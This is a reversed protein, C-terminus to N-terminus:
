GRSWKGKKEGLSTNTNTKERNRAQAQQYKGRLDRLELELLKVKDELNKNRVRNGNIENLLTANETARRSLDRRSAANARSSQRTLSHLRKDLAKMQRQAEESGLNERPESTSQASKMMNTQRTAISHKAPTEEGGVVHQHYIRKLLKPWEKMDTHHVVTSLERKLELLTNKGEVIAENLMVVEQRHHVALHAKREVDDELKRLLRAQEELEQQTEVLRKRLRKIEQDKPAVSESIERLRYEVVTRGKTVSEVKERLARVGEEMQRRGRVHEGSQQQLAEIRKSQDELKIKYADMVSSAEASENALRLKEQQMAQIGKALEEKEKLRQEADQTLKRIEEDKECIIKNVEIERENTEMELMTEYKKRLDEALEQSAEHAETARRLRAQFQERLIRKERKSRDRQEAEQIQSEEIDRRRRRELEEVRAEGVALKREYRAELQETTEVQSTQMARMRKLADREKADAAAELAAYRGRLEETEARDSDRAKSVEEKMQTTMDAITKSLEKELQAIMKNANSIDDGGATLRDRSITLTDKPFRISRNHQLAWHALATPYFAGPLDVTSAWPTVEHVIEGNLLRRLVGQYRYSRGQGPTTILGGVVIESRSYAMSTYVCGNTTVHEWKRSWSACEWETVYSSSAVDTFAVALHRDESDFSLGCVGPNDQPLCSIRGRGESPGVRLTAIKALGRHMGFVVVQKTDRGVDGVALYQGGASWVLPAAETILVEKLVVLDEDVVMLIRVKETFAVAMILGGVPHIAVDIPEETLFARSFVM